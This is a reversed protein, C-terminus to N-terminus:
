KFDLDNGTGAGDMKTELKNEIEKIKLEEERKERYIKNLQNINMEWLSELSEIKSKAISINIM